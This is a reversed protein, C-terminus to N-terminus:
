CFEDQIEEDIYLILYPLAETEELYEKMTSFKLNYVSSIWGQTSLCPDFFDVRVRMMDDYYALYMVGGLLHLIM